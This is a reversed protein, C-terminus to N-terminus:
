TSTVQRRPDKKVYQTIVTHLLNVIVYWHLFMKFAGIVKKLQYTFSCTVIM